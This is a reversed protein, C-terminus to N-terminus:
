ANIISNATDLDIRRSVTATLMAGDGDGEMRWEVIIGSPIGLAEGILAAREPSDPRIIHRAM